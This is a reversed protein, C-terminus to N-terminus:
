PSAMASRYRPNLSFARWLIISTPSVHMFAVIILAQLNEVTLSNTAGTIVKNRSREVEREICSGSLREGSTTLTRLTAALMAHLILPRDAGEDLGQLKRRFTTMHIMPIWPHINMFYADLLVRLRTGTLFHSSVDLEEALKSSPNERRPQQTEESDSRQRKSRRKHNSSSADLESAPSGLGPVISQSLVSISSSLNEIQMALASLAATGSVGLETNTTVPDQTLSDAVFRPSSSGGNRQLTHEM